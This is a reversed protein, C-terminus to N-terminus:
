ENFKIDTQQRDGGGGRGVQGRKSDNYPDAGVCISPRDSAMRRSRIAESRKGRHWNSNPPVNVYSRVEDAKIFCYCSVQKFFIAM